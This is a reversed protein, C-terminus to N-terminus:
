RTHCSLILICQSSQADLRTLANQVMRCELAKIYLLMSFYISITSYQITLNTTNNRNKFQGHHVLGQHGKFILTVELGFPSRGLLLWNGVRINWQLWTKINNTQTSFHRVSNYQPYNHVKTHCRHFRLILMVSKVASEISM